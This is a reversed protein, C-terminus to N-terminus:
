WSGDRRKSEKILIAMGLFLSFISEIFNTKGEDRQALRRRYYYPDWYRSWQQCFRQKQGGITVQPTKITRHHDGISSSGYVSESNPFTEQELDTFDWSPAKLIWDM